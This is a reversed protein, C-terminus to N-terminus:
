QDLRVHLQRLTEPSKLCLEDVFCHAFHSDLKRTLYNIHVGSRDRTRKKRTQQAVDTSAYVDDVCKQDGFLATDFDGRSVDASAAVHSGRNASLDARAM